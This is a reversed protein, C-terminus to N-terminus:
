EEAFCEGSGGGGSWILEEVLGTKGCRWESGDGWEGSWLGTGSVVVCVGVM